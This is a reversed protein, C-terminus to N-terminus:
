HNKYLEITRNKYQSPTMGVTNQFAKYFTTMSSFGVDSSIAKLPIRNGPDSILKVAENIRYENIYQTFTLSTQQNIIQSLYTRNTGLMDAVKEKTLLNDRYIAEERMIKELQLFLNVGKEESLSSMSYKEQMQKERRIRTHYQHVITTYFRNRRWIFYVLFLVILFFGILSIILLQENKTKQLLNLKVEKIENERRETDYKMRLDSLAREKDTNFLSDSETQFRRQWELARNYEGKSEYCLSLERLLKDRHIPNNETHTLELAEELVPIARDLAQKEHWARAYGYLTYVISSTQAKDKLDLGREFYEIAEDTNGQALLIHGYLAYINTQDYFDNQKMLFEAEKIYQLAKEYEGCLYYMYATNTSAAFIHYPNSEKHGREYAELSYSLGVPDDKLYYIGSINILLITHLQSYGSREAAAIGQFFLDISRYYDNEINAAYLGLGNYVSCLASDNQNSEAIAKAQHLNATAENKNGKMMNAQGLAIHAYLVAFDYDESQYGIDLLQEGYHIAEDYNAQHLLLFSIEKLAKTDQPNEQLLKKQLDIAESFENQAYTSGIFFFCCLVISLLRM